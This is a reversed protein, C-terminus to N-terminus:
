YDNEVGLLEEPTCIIPLVLNLSDLLNAIRPLVEVNAIHKCNWTLLYEVQHVTAIAIHLADPFAKQPLFGKAVINRALTTAQDTVLLRPLSAVAELRNKAISSDGRQIEDVVIQSVVLDFDERRRAWWEITIQQHAATIPDRSERPVATLYSVFSTELYVRAM